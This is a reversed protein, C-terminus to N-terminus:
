FDQEGFSKIRLRGPTWGGACVSVVRVHYNYVLDKLTPMGIVSERSLPALNDLYLVHFKGARAAAIM